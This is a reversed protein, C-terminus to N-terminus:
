APVNLARNVVLGTVTTACCLWCSRCIRRMFRWRFPLERQLPICSATLFHRIDLKLVCPKGCPARCQAPHQRRVPLGHRIPVCASPGAASLPDAVPHAEAAPGPRFAGAGRRLVQPDAQPPLAPGAHRQRRVADRHPHRFGACPLLAGSVILHRGGRRWGASRYLNHIPFRAATDSQVGGTHPFVALPSVQAARM